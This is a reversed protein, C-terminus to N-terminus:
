YSPLYRPLVAGDAGMLVLVGKDVRYHRVQRLTDLVQAERGPETDNCPMHAATSLDNLRLSDGDVQYTGQMPNCGTSGTLKGETAFILEPRTGAANELQWRSAALELTGSGTACASLAFVSLLAFRKM